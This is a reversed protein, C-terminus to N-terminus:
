AARAMQRALQFYSEDVGGKTMEAATADKLRRCLTDIQSAVDGMVAHRQREVADAIAVDSGATPVVTITGSLYAEHTEDSNGAGSHDGELIVVHGEVVERFVAVMSSNYADHEGPTMGSCAVLDSCPFISSEDSNVESYTVSIEWIDDNRRVTDAEDVTGSVWDSKLDAVTKLDLDDTLLAVALLKANLTKIDIM